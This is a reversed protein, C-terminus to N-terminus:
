IKLGNVINFLYVEYGAREGTAVIAYAILLRKDDKIQEDHGIFIVDGTFVGCYKDQEFVDMVADVGHRTFVYSVFDMADKTTCAPMDVVHHTQYPIDPHAACASLIASVTLTLLKRM